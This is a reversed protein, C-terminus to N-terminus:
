PTKSEARVLTGEIDFRECSLDQSTGETVIELHGAGRALLTLSQDGMAVEFADLTGSALADAVTLECAQATKARAVDGDVSLTITCRLGLEVEIASDGKPAIRLSVGALEESAREGSCTAAAFGEEYEWEGAFDGARDQPDPSCGMLAMFLLWGATTKM